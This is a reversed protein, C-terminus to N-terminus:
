SETGIGEVWCAFNKDTFNGTTMTLRSLVQGHVDIEDEKYVSFLSNVNDGAHLNMDM